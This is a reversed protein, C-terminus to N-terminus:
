LEKTDKELSNWTKKYNQLKSIYRKSKKQSKPIESNSVKPM